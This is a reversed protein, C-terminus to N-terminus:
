ESSNTNEPFEYAWLSHDNRNQFYLLSDNTGAKVDIIDLERGSEELPNIIFDVGSNGEPMKWLSDTFSVEGRYWADPFGDDEAQGGEACYIALEGFTCKEPVFALYMPQTFENELDTVESIFKNSQMKTYIVKNKSAQAMLGFGSIPTRAFKGNTIKYLYGELYRSTKPYVYHSDDPDAGWVVTAERFPIEFLTKTTKTELDLSKGSLGSGEAITYLLDDNSNIFFDRIPESLTYSDVSGGSQTLITLNAEPQNGARVAIYTGDLSISAKTAVPVTVNSVRNESGEIMPDITYVHGTGAEVFYVLTSSVTAVEVYGIVRKTTLQRLYQKQFIDPVIADIVEEFIGEEPSGNLGFRNYVDNKTNDNAFLLFLWVAVLALILVIGVIYLSRKM